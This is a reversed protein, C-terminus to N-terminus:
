GSWSARLVDRARSQFQLSKDETSAETIVRVIGETNSVRLHFWGDDFCAKVGDQTDISAPGLDEALKSIAETSFRGELAVKDKHIVFPPYQELQERLSVGRDALLQLILAMGLPADRGPHLTPYIVGGNGEGGITAGIQLMKDVVHAEGVPTRYVDVAYKQAIHDVLSSTSMNVVIPGPASPLVGDVALALTCEESVATGEGDVLALRDADPDCALGLDAGEERVRQALERLNEPRPEPDRFFDGNPECNIEVVAVGLESLLRPAIVSGAGNICDLVVKFQRSAIASADVAELDLIARIHDDSAPAYEKVSGCGRGDALAFTGSRYAEYLKQGLEEPIFIGRHDLFKLANWEVPNHSATIIVAAAAGLKETAMEVTPTTAVGLDVCDRGSATVAGIVSHSFSEGSPRTDRGVVIEGEPLISCFALTLRTVVDVDITEGVIGRAGAVSFLLRDSL